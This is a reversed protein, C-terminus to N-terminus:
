ALDDLITGISTPPGATKWQKVMDRRAEIRSVGRARANQASQVDLLTEVIVKLPEETNM